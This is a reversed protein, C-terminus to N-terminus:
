PFRLQRAPHHRGGAQDAGLRSDARVARRGSRAALLNGPALRRARWERDRRPRLVARDQPPRCPPRGQRGELPFRRRAQATRFRCSQAAPSLAARHVRGTPVRSGEIIPEYYGTLFGATDGLKNIRLPASITKSSNERAMTTSRSRGRARPYLRGQACRRGSKRRPGVAAQHDHARPLQGLFTSFAAAHDDNAWGDVDAWEVPEYQTDPFKIPETEAARAAPSKGALGILLVFLCFVRCYAAM